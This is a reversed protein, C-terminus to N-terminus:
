GHEVLGVNKHLFASLNTQGFCAASLMVLSKAVSDTVQPLLLVLYTIPHAVAPSLPLQIPFKAVVVECEM